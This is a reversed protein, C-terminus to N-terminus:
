SAISSKLEQEVLNEVQAKVTKLKLSALKMDEVQLETASKAWQHELKLKEQILKQLAM